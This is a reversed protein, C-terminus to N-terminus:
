SEGGARKQKALSAVSRKAILLRFSFGGVRTRMPIFKSKGGGDGGRSPRRKARGLGATSHRFIVGRLHVTVICWPLIATM